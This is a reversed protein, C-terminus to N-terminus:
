SHMETCRAVSIWGYVYYLYLSTILISLSAILFMILLKQESMLTPHIVHTWRLRNESDTAQSM